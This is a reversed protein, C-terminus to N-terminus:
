ESAVLFKHTEWQFILLLMVPFHFTILNMFNDHTSYLKLINVMKIDKKRFNDHLKMPYRM